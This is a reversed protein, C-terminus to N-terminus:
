AGISIPCIIIIGAGGGGSHSYNGPGCNSSGGGGGCCGSGAYAHGSSGLGSGGDFPGAGEVQTSGRWMAVQGTKISNSLNRWQDTDTPRMYSLSHRELGPFLEVGISPNAIGSVARQYDYDLSYDAARGLVGTGLPSGGPASRQDSSETSGVATAFAGDQGPGWLGVGGGGSSRYRGNASYAAPAGGGTNNYLTGGTATGGAVSLLNTNTKYRGGGGGNGTMTTMGSGSMSSAGGAIGDIGGQTKQAGGSGVVLTYNQAALTLKSVSCGGAGGGNSRYANAFNDISTGGSGGGGIVYVLAEM